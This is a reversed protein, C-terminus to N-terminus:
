WERIVWRVRDPNSLAITVTRTWIGGSGYRSDARLHVANWGKQLNLNLNRTIIRFPDCCCGMDNNTRGTGSITVNQDVYIYMVWEIIYPTGEEWRHRMIDGNPINIHSIAAAQASGVALGAFIDAPVGIDEIYSNFFEAIDWLDGINPSDISFNLLGDEISGTWGTVTRFEQFPDEHWFGVGTINRNETFTANDFSHRLQVGELDVSEGLIPNGEIGNRNTGNAPSGTGGCSALPLGIVAALAIAGVIKVTTKM